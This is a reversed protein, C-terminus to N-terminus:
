YTRCTNNWQNRIDETDDKNYSPPAIYGNEKWQESLEDTVSVLLSELPRLDEISNCQLAQRIDKILGACPQIQEISAFVPSKGQSKIDEASFLMTDTDEVNLKNWLEPKEALAILSTYIIMESFYDAKPSLQRNEWRAPHQYGELGSIEDSWGQLEPVYMSDYDVLVIQGDDKVMINGHQLDGHSFHNQHLDKVMQLFSSALQNLAMSDYLHEKIYEKLPHANVWDMIVIPQLGMPTLIGDSIYEFNVFYPLKKEALSRAIKQTREKAGDLNAHWCRVAYKKGSVIYPYVICFGGCYKIPRGNFSVPNGGKLQPAKILEPVGISATYDVCSPLPM